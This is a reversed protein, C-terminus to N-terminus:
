MWVTIIKLTMNLERCCRLLYSLISCLFHTMLSCSAIQVSSEVMERNFLSVTGSKASISLGWLTLFFNNKWML